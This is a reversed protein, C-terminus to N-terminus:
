ACYVYIASQDLFIAKIGELFSQFVSPTSLADSLLIFAGFELIILHNVGASWKGVKWLDKLTLGVNLTLM